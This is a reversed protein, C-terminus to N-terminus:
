ECKKGTIYLLTDDAFLNIAVESLVEPMDNIYIIFLIAGIISGQPIGIRNDRPRSIQGNVKTVQKRGDLYSEFWKLACNNIGFKKLKQILKQRDITEFARKLDLFVCLISENNDKAEKWNVIVLNLATECSHMKRYGSQRKTLLHNKEIYEMLQDKM